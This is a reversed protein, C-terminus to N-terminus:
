SVQHFIYNLASMAPQLESIPIGHQALHGIITVEAM